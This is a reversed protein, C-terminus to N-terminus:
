RLIFSYKNLLVWYGFDKQLSRQTAAKVNPESLSLIQDYRPQRGERLEYWVWAKLEANGRKGTLYCDAFCLSSSAEYGKQSNYDTVSVCVFVCVCETHTKNAVKLLKATKQQFGSCCSHLLVWPVESVPVTVWSFCDQACVRCFVSTFVGESCM